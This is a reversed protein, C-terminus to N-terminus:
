ARPHHRRHVQTLRTRDVHTYVQTTAIDAHGLMEQIVRLPAGHALLHSAFSHRLTHPSFPRTIRAKRAYKRVLKWLGQRTFPKRRRTLFLEPTLSHGALQPRGSDLYARLSEVARGGLPVVREKAGKGVCRVYGEDLRLDSLKLSALESVRLGTAYLTELIARDRSGIPTRPDPARLLRDVESQTLVSPLIKELRPSDMSEAVNRALLAEGSLFRLFVKIAVLRRSLTAVSMGRKKEAFLFDTIHERRLDNLSPIGRNELFGLFDSLDAHYSNVTNPQLGRELRLHNFFIDLLADFRSTETM